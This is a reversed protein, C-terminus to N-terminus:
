LSLRYVKPELLTIGKAVGDRYSYDVSLVRRSADGLAKYVENPANKVVIPYGVVSLAGIDNASNGAYAVNQPHIHLERIIRLLANAKTAEAHMFEFYHPQSPSFALTDSSSEVLDKISERFASMVKRDPRVIILIKHPQHTSPKVLFYEMDHLDSYEILGRNRKIYEARMDEVSDDRVSVLHNGNNGFFYNMLVNGRFPERSRLGEFKKMLAIADETEIPRRYLQNGNHDLVLAGNHAIIYWGNLPGILRAIHEISVPARGSAFVISLHQSLRRIAGLNGPSLEGDNDTLTGDIDTAFLKVATRDHRFEFLKELTAPSISNLLRTLGERYTEQKARIDKGAPYTMRFDRPAFDRERATQNWISLYAEDRQRSGFIRSTAEEDLTAILEASSYKSGVKRMLDLQTDLRHPEGSINFIIIDPVGNGNKLISSEVDKKSVAKADYIDSTFVSRAVNSFDLNDSAILVTLRGEREILNDLTSEQSLVM